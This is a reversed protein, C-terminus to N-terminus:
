EFFRIYARDDFSRNGQLLGKTAKFQGINLPDDALHRALLAESEELTGALYPYGDSALVIPIKKEQPIPIVRVHKMPIPFGDIVSYGVNQKQCSRVLDPLIHKRGTDDHMFQAVSAGNELAQHIFRARKEALPQESPKPNEYLIGDLLCQCDGIMWIEHMKRSYVVVSAAMRWTPSEALLQLDANAKIYENKIALTAIECFERCSVDSPMNKITESVVQMAFQGNRMTESLQVPSKSTSGDIVAIHNETTM